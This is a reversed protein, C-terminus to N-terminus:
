RVGSVLRVPTGDALYLREWMIGGASIRISGHEQPATTFHRPAPTHQDWWGAGALAEEERRIDDTAFPWLSVGLMTRRSTQWDRARAASYALCVHSSEEVLHVCAGSQEVLRRLADDSGRQPGLLDLAAWQLDPPPTQVGSEWRSVTAQDVHLLDALAAQKMGSSRRARRLRRGFAPFSSPSAPM